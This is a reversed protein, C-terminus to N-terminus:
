TNSLFLITRAANILRGNHVTHCTKKGRDGRTQETPDQPRELRRATGDHGL